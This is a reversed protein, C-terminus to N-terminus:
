VTCCSIALGMGDMIMTQRLIVSICFLFWRNFIAFCYLDAPILRPSLTTCVCPYSSHDTNNTHSRPGAGVGEPRLSVGQKAVPAHEKLAGQGCSSSVAIVCGSMAKITRHCYAGPNCGPQQCDALLQSSLRQNDLSCGPPRTSSVAHQGLVPLGWYRCYRMVTTLSLFQTQCILDIWRVHALVDALLFVEEM